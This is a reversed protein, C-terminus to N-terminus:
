QNHSEIHEILVWHRGEIGVFSFDVDDAKHVREDEHSVLYRSRFRIQRDVELYIQNDKIDIVRARM